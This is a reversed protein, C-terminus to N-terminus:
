RGATGSWTLAFRHDRCVDQDVTRLNRQRISPTAVSEDPLTLSSSAPVLLVHDSMATFAFTATASASPNTPRSGTTPNVVSPSSAARPMGHVTVLLAVFVGLLALATHRANTPAKM